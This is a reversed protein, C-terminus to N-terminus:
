RILVEVKDATSTTQLYAYIADRKWSGHLRINEFPVNHNFSYMPRSRRFAHFTFQSPDLGLQRICKALVLRVKCPLWLFTDGLNGAVLHLILPCFM